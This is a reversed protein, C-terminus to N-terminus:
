AVILQVASGGLCDNINSTIVEFAIDFLKM